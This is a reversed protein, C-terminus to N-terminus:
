QGKQKHDVKLLWADIAALSDHEDLFPVHGRDAVTTAMLGRAEQQMRSVTAVSLLDSGQGRLLAFPVDHLAPLVSWLEGVKGSKIDEDTPLTDALRPDHSPCIGQPTEVYIRKAFLLWADHTLNSFGHSGVALATAADDWTKYYIPHGVYDKIRQLGDTQLECGIDNLMLGALFPKAYAAMLLGVIGGRSTGLLAVSSVGLQNLFGLTDQLEVDVRYTMPDAAKASRGRGRFDMAIVRRTTAYRDFVPDFDRSHRTLGPLCLVPIRDGELPGDDRAYLRTGDPATFWRDTVAV